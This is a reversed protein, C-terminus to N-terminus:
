SPYKEQYLNILVNGHCPNPSCWCGLTMGKLEDLQDYLPSSKIYDEYQTLCEELNSKDRNLKYPNHWKSQNAGKVYFAMNRGIYIHNPDQLWEELNNYGVKRLHAVSINVVTPISSM